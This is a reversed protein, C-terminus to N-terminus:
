QDFDRYIERYAISLQRKNNTAGVYMQVFYKYTQHPCMNGSGEALRGRVTQQNEDISVFNELTTQEPTYPYM